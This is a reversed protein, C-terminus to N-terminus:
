LTARLLDSLARRAPNLLVWPGSRGITVLLTPYPGSVARFPTPLEDDLETALRFRMWVPAAHELCGDSSMPPEM